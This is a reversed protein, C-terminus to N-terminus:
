FELIVRGILGGRLDLIANNINGFNYNTMPYDNFNLKNQFLLDFLLPIDIDPNSGGGKSGRISKGFHLPLTYINVNSGIKPVGVLIIRALADSAEYCIEIASPNGSTDIAIKPLNNGFILKLEELVQLKSRYSIGYAAGMEIAKHVKLHDTDVVIINNVGLYKAVKILTLGVGGTGFILMSEDVSVEAEKTLVGFATTLACGLLPIVDKSIKGSQIRTVRNESVVSHRNFTTIWGSNLEKGRWKYKAPEAEIGSGPRWHMVVHDGKTVKSVANGIELVKAYGEHGLLHPLFKDPGKVADIENIQAGCIGSTILEVLVQGKLLKEPLTIEDIVLESNSKHLIAAETVKLMKQGSM